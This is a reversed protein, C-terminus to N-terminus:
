PSLVIDLSYGCGPDGLDSQLIVQLHLQDDALALWSLAEGDGTAASSTLLQAGSDFLSLSLDGEASDFTVAVDLTEGTLIDMGYWDEDSPCASLDVLSGPLVLVAAGEADNPEQLDTPCVAPGDSYALDLEYPNGPVAGSDVVLDVVLVVPGDATAVHSVAEDDTLTSSAALETGGADFLTVDIDGEAHDFGVLFDIQEGTVLEALWWDEDDPCAVLGSLVGEPIASATSQADNPEWPDTECVPQPDTILVVLDYPTGPVDGVDDLLLVRLALDATAENMIVAALGDTGSSSGLLESAANFLGLEIRGEDVDYTAAITLSGGDAVDIAFWDEDAPCSILGALDGALAIADSQSDNPESPDDDCPPPTADDDDDPTVSDDDDPAVSDDDDTAVDDDDEPRTFPDEGPPPCGLLALILPFALLTRRTIVAGLRGSGCVRTTGLAPGRSGPM